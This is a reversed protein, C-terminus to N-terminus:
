PLEAVQPGAVPVPPATPTALAADPLYGKSKARALFDAIKDPDTLRETVFVPKGAKQFTDLAVLVDAAPALDNDVPKDGPYFVDHALVGDVAALFDKKQAQTLAATLGTGGDVVLSFNADRKRAHAALTDVFAAMDAGASPRDALDHDFVAVGRLCVGDYGSQLLNDLSTTILKQWDADWFRAPYVGPTKPDAGDLWAPAAATPKGTKDDVWTAQWAHDTKAMEGIDLLALVRHRGNQQLAAVPKVPPATDKATAKLAPPAVVLAPDVIVLDTPHSTLAALMAEPKAPPLFASSTWSHIAALSRTAPLKPGGAAAVAASQPSGVPSISTAPTPGLVANSGGAGACGGVCLATGVWAGVRM